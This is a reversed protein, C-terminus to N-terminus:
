KYFFSRKKVYPLNEDEDIKTEELPINSDWQGKAWNIPNVIRWISRDNIINKWQKNVHICSNFLDYPNLYYIFLRLLIENPIQSIPSRNELVIKLSFFFFKFYFNKRIFGKLACQNWQKNVTLCSQKLQQDTLYKM